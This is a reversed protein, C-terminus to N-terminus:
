CTRSDLVSHSAFASRVGGSFEGGTSDSWLHRHALLLALLGFGGVSPAGVRLPFLSLRMHESLTQVNFVPLNPDLQRVERRLAAILLSPEGVTRVILTRDNSADGVYSQPPPRYVFPRPDESLSFYKGDKAV